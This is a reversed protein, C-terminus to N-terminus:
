NAAESYSPSYQKRAEISGALFIYNVVFIMTINKVQHPIM